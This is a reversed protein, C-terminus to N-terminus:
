YTIKNNSFTSVYEHIKIYAIKNGVYLPTNTASALERVFVDNLLLKIQKVDFGLIM